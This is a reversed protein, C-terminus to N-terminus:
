GTGPLTANTLWKFGDLLALSDYASDSVDFISIRLEVVQGPIVNGATTLWFTGGGVVCSGSKEFGTGALDGIGLSCSSAAVSSDYCTNGTQSVAPDCVAFLNTGGAVNIGIPWKTQTSLDLYTMLNKDVPNPLPSPTGSPTDVLAVFQDNFSTCVFEPYEASFFYSNFSFARANTPARLKIRLMVSDNANGGAATGCGPAAPFQNAAKLSGNATSYWDKICKPSTCTTLSVSSSPTHSTSVNSSGPAGGNPGPTTQTADSAIGSSLVVLSDGEFPTISNGFKARISKARQDGLATGDARLLEAEILGWTKDKLNAPADQTTRCIGLAKAYDSGTTSDSALAKDCSLADEKDFLDIKGNCNDDIGNGVVEYAGPNVLAPNAGCLGPKDCCDGDAAKWGDNDCDTTSSDCTGCTGNLCDQGTACATGCAGCNNKDGSTDVCKNGCQTTGSPCTGVCSGAVCVDGANCPQACAGCNAPDSQTDVCDAGCKTTGGSCQVGCQGLSCVEGQACATGCAGCNAPDVQPDVCKSNCAITGGSCSGGCTGQSCFEGAACANGCSGCNAPDNNTDACVGGGCDTLNGCSSGGGGGVNGTNGTGGGGTNGTNGFGGTNGTNGFGGTNGTNGAGGTGSSGSDSGCGVPALGVIAASVIGLASIRAATWGETM